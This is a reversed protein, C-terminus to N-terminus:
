TAGSRPQFFISHTDGDDPEHSLDWEDHSLDEDDEDPLLPLDPDAPDPRDVEEDPFLPLDPDWNPPEEDDLPM